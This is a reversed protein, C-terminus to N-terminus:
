IMFPTADLDLPSPCGTPNNTPLGLHSHMAVKDVGCPGGFRIFMPRIRKGLGSGAVSRSVWFASGWVSQICQPRSKSSGPSNDGDCTSPTRNSQWLPGASVEPGYFDVLQSGTIVCRDYPARCRRITTRLDGLDYRQTRAFRSLDVTM